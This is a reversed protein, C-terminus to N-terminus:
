SSLKMVLKPPFLFRVCASLPFPPGYFDSMQQRPPPALIAWFISVDYVAGLPHHRPLKYFMFYFLIKDDKLVLQQEAGARHKNLVHYTIKLTYKGGIKDLIRIVNTPDLIKKVKCM